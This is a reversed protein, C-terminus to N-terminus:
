IGLVGLRWVRVMQVRAEFSHHKEPDLTMGQFRRRREPSIEGEAALFSVKFTRSNAPLLTGGLVLILTLSGLILLVAPIYLEFLFLAGLGILGVVAIMVPKM